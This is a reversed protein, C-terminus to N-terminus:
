GVQYLVAYIEFEVVRVELITNAIAIGWWWLLARVLWPGIKTM